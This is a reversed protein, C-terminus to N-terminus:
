AAGALTLDRSQHLCLDRSRMTKGYQRLADNMAEGKAQAPRIFGNRTGNVAHAKFSQNHM